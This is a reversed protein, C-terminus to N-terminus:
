DDNNGAPDEAPDAELTARHRIYELQWAKAEIAEKDSLQITYKLYYEGHRNKYVRDGIIVGIAGAGEGRTIKVHDGICFDLPEPQRIEPAEIRRGDVNLMATERKM